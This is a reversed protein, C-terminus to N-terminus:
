PTDGVASRWASETLAQGGYRFMAASPSSLTYANGPGFVLAAQAKTTNFVGVAAWAGGTADVSTGSVHVNYLTARADQYLGLGIRNTHASADLTCDTVTVNDSSVITIQGGRPTASGFFYGNGHAICRDYTAAHSIEHFFGHTSNEVAECRSALVNICGVDCWMGPGDNYRTLTLAVTLGNVSGFKMGAANYQPDYDRGLGRRLNCREVTCCSILGGSFGHGGIGKPSVDHVYCKTVTFDDGMSIGPCLADRLELQNLTWGSAASGWVMGNASTGTYREIALNALVVGAASGRFAYQAQDAGTMVCLRTGPTGEGVFRQNAKPVVQQRVHTGGKCLFTTGAPNADAAAQWSDGVNITAYTAGLTIDPVSACDAPPDPPPGGPPTVGPGPPRVQGNASGGPVAYVNVLTVAGEAV